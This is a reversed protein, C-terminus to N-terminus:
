GPAPAPELAATPGTVLLLPSLVPVDPIKDYEPKMCVYKTHKPFVPACLLIPPRKLPIHRHGDFQVLITSLLNSLSLNRRLFGAPAGCMIQLAQGVGKARRGEKLPVFYIDMFVINLLFEPHGEKDKSAFFSFASLFKFQHCIKESVFRRV